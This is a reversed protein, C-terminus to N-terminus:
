PHLLEDLMQLCHLIARWAPQACKFNTMMPQWFLSLLDSTRSPFNLVLEMVDQVVKTCNMEHWLWWCSLLICVCCSCFSWCRDCKSLWSLASVCLSMFFRHTTFAYFLYRLLFHSREGWSPIFKAVVGFLMGTFSIIAENLCPMLVVASELSSSLTSMQLMRFSALAGAVDLTILSSPWAIFFSLCPSSMRIRKVLLLLAVTTIFLDLDM